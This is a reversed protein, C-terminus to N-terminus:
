RFPHLADVIKRFGMQELLPSVARVLVRQSESFWQGFARDYEHLAFPM